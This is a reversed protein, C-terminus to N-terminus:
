IESVFNEWHKDLSMVNGLFPKALNIGTASENAADSAPPEDYAVVLVLDEALAPEKTFTGSIGGEISWGQDMM